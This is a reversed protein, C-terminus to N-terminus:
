TSFHDRVFAFAFMNLSESVKKAFNGKRIMPWLFRCSPHLSVHAATYRIRRRLQKHGNRRLNDHGWVLRCRGTHAKRTTHVDATPISWVNSSIAQRFLHPHGYRFARLAWGLHRRPRLLKEVIHKRRGHLQVERFHARLDLGPFPVHGYVLTSSHLAWANGNM